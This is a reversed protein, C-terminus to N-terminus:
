QITLKKGLFDGYAAVAKKILPGATKPPKIFYDFAVITDKKATRKWTGMAQGNVVLVPRFLGNNSIAKSHQTADLIASRDTYSIVYEDYAPLLFAAPQKNNPLTFSAPLWYTQDGAKETIFEKKIAELGAKSETINLGSWWVFDKVTVPAHSTIYRRALEAIAEERTYSKKKKPAWEHLLAYTADGEKLPGSCILGDLEASFLLHSARNENVAINAKTFLEVLEKRTLHKHQTLAKEIIANSKKLVAPTLALQRHRGALTNRLKPASLELMWHIDNPSIFHWTPRLVHTRLIQGKHIAANIGAETAGPVRMGIAWKAMNYDQAQLVGMWSVLAAPKTFNSAAIQQTILRIHAIDKTTM